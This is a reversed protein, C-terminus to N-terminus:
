REAAMGVFWAWKAEGDEPVYPIEFATGEVQEKLDAFARLLALHGKISPIDVLPGETLKGGVSFKSPFTYGPPADLDGGKEPFSGLALTSTYAPPPDPVPM